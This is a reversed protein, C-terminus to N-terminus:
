GRDQRAHWLRLIAVEDDTVEYVLVYPRVIVLERTGRALGRRGRFPFDALSDAAVVLETVVEEAHHPIEEMLYAFVRALDDQAADRWRVIREPETV